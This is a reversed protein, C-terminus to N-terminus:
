PAGEAPAPPEEAGDLRALLRVLWDPYPALARDHLGKLFEAYERLAHERGAEPINNLVQLAVMGFDTVDDPLEGQRKVRDELYWRTIRSWVKYESRNESLAHLASKSIGIEDALARVATGQNRRAAIYALM